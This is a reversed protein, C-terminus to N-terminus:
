ARETTAVAAQQILRSGPYFVYRVSGTFGGMQFGDFSIEVRDGLTIARAAALQLNGIHSRTGNPHSPPFDFFEDFGERRKGTQCTYLPAANQVVTKGNVGISAILPKAPELILHTKWPRKAGDQWRVVVVDGDQVVSVPGATVGSLDIAVPAAVCFAPIVGSFWRFVRLSIM